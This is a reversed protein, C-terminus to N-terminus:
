NVKRFGRVAWYTAVGLTLVALPVGVVQLANHSLYGFIEADSYRADRAGLIDFGFLFGFLEVARRLWWEWTVYGVWIAAGLLWLRFMGRKWNM